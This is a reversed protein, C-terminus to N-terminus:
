WADEAVGLRIKASPSLTSFPTVTRRRRGWGVSKGPLPVALEPSLARVAGEPDAAM